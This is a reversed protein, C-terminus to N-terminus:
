QRGDDKGKSIDKQLLGYFDDLSLLETSKEMAQHYVQSQQLMEQITENFTELTLQDEQLQEAYGKDVFYQANEIQDGRSAEKGLPVILHLKNMALLEFLTNAGGRTVVLDAKQLMPLYQDTVYDVRYLGGEAQHLLEAQHETVFENFVRAGASGGVFLLTPLEKRFGKTKEELVESTPSIHDTVKTVAGIHASKTLGHAQEFTTYMKTAFKYAIKNALGMSLDSEHIYVPVRTLRAAIVPPVSVFGGKSFLVQPRVRLLIAISQLTGWAVKFVDMMNQFSFYRRLKGTAISHFRVELGSKKIEQYEIGKKDGIYHVEWGDEIFKPILLLNLTVHGVTGGGTFMIKKM